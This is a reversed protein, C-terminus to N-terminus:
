RGEEYDSQERATATRASIIRIVNDTEETHVVLLLRRAESKGLTLLREESEAHSDDIKTTSLPDGFVTGAEKFSVDHKRLNALSKKPDWTFEMPM